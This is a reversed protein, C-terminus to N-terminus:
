SKIIYEVDKMKENRSEICQTGWIKILNISKKPPPPITTKNDKNRKIIKTTTRISKIRDNNKLQDQNKSIETFLESNSKNYM